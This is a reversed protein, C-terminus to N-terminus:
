QYSVSLVTAAGTIITLGTSFQCDFILTEMAGAAPTFTPAIETGSAATNDYVAITGLTGGLVTISHLFGAGSKVTTTTATKIALKNFRNIM